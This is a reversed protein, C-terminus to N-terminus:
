GNDMTRRDVIEDDISKQVSGIYEDVMNELEDPDEPYWTGASTSVFEINEKAMKEFVGYMDSM